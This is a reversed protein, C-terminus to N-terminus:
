SESCLVENWDKRTPRLRRVSLHRAIMAQAVAEGTDDADFGCFIPEPQALLNSLWAPDPRAGATSLCRASPHLAHCSLADIASECLVCAQLNTAPIAFCGLDKRSGPAMGRWSVPGTGTPHRASM